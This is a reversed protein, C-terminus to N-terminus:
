NIYGYERLRNLLSSLVMEDMYLMLLDDKNNSFIIGYESVEYKNFSRIDGLGFADNKNRFILSSADELKPKDIEITNWDKDSWAMKDAIGDFVMIFTSNTFNDLLKLM